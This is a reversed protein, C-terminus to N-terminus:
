CLVQILFFEVLLIIFGIIFPLLSFEEDEEDIATKNQSIQEEKVLEDPTIAYIKSLKILNDMDPYNKNTEWRYIARRSVNMQQALNEQSMNKVERLKKLRKGLAVKIM